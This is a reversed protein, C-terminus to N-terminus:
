GYFALGAMGSMIRLINYSNAYIGWRFTIHNNLVELAFEPTLEMIMTIDGLKNMNVSGSPQLYTPNIAFSYIQIGNDCSISRKSYPQILSYFKYDKFLEREKGNFKFKLAKTPIIINGNNIHVYNHHENLLSNNNSDVSYIGYNDGIEVTNGSNSGFKNTQIIWILEKCSNKFTIDASIRYSLIGNENLTTFINRSSFQLDGNYQIHDILIEHKNEAILTREDKEIYLYEAMFHASMKPKRTFKANNDWYAIKNLDQIKLRIAIESYNLAVLPLSSQIIKTFWFSLPIYLLKKNKTTSNYSYLDPTNGIMYNYSRELDIKKNLNYFLHMWEGSHKDIVEGDIELEISDIIFHGIYRIWAFNAIGNMMNLLETAPPSNICYKPEVPQTNIDTISVLQTTEDFSFTDTSDIKYIVNTNEEYVYVPNTIIRSSETIIQGLKAIQNKKKTISSSFINRFCNITEQIDPKIFPIYNGLTIKIIYDSIYQAIDTDSEFNNYNIGINIKDRYLMHANVWNILIGFQIKEDSSSSDVDLINNYWNQLNTSTYPNQNLLVKKDAVFNFNTKFFNIIDMVGTTIPVESTADVNLNVPVNIINFFVTDILNDVFGRSTSTNNVYYTSINNQIVGKINNHMINLDEFYYSSPAINIDKMRLLTFKTTYSEILTNYLTIKDTLADITDDYTDDGVVLPDLYYDHNSLDPIGLITSVQQKNLILEEGLNDIYYSDLFLKNQYLDNYNAIMDKQLNFWISSMADSVIKTTFNITQPSITGTTQSFIRFGNTKYVEYDPIPARYSNITNEGVEIIREKINNGVKDVETTLTSDADIINYFEAFMSEIVFELYTLNSFSVPIITEVGNTFIVKNYSISYKTGPRFLGMFMIDNTEKFTTNVSGVFGRDDNDTVKSLLIDTSIVTTVTAIIDLMSTEIIDKLDIAIVASPPDFLSIFDSIYFNLNDEVLGPIENVIVLPIFNLLYIGEYLPDTATPDVMQLLIFPTRWLNQDEFYATYTTNRFLDRNFIHFNNIINNVYVGFFHILNNAENSDSSVTFFSTFNDEFNNERNTSVNFFPDTSTYVNLSQFDFEKYFAFRLHPTTPEITNFKLSNVIATLQKINKGINFLIFHLIDDLATQIDVINSITTVASSNANIDFYDIYIKYADLNTYLEGIGLSTDTLYAKQIARDFINIMAEGITVDLNTYTALDLYHYFILNEDLRDTNDRTIINDLYTRYLKNQLSTLNFINKPAEIKDLYYSRFYRYYQNNSNTEMLSDFLLNAYQRGSLSSVDGLSTTTTDLMNLQEQLINVEEHLKTINDGILPIIVNIFEDDSVIDTQNGTFNYVIEFEKLYNKAFFTTIKDFTINIEPLEIMLYLKHLLDGYKHIKCTSTDGFNIRKNFKLKKDVKTFNTHRRYITKFLTIDPNRTLYADDIGRAILQM